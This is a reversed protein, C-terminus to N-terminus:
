FGRLVVPKLSHHIPAAALMSGMSWYGIKNPFALDAVNNDLMQNNRNRVTSVASCATHSSVPQKSM